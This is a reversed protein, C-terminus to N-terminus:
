NRIGEKRKKQEKNKVKVNKDKEGANKVLGVMSEEINYQNDETVENKSSINEINQM